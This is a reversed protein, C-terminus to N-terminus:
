HYTVQQLCETITPVTVCKYKCNFMELLKVNRYVCMFAASHTNSAWVPRQGSESVSVHSALTWAWCSYMGKLEHGKQDGAIRGDKKLFVELTIMLYPRFYEVDDNNNANLSQWNIEAKRHYKNINNFIWSIQTPWLQTMKGDNKSCASHAAVKVRSVVSLSQECGGSTM